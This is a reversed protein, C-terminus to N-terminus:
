KLRRYVLSQIKNGTRSFPNKFLLSAKAPLGLQFFISFSVLIKYSWFTNQLILLNVILFSVLLCVFTLYDGSFSAFELNWKKLPKKVCHMPWGSGGGGGSRTSVKQQCKKPCKKCVSKAFVKQTCKKQERKTSVKLTCYIKWNFKNEKLFCRGHAALIVQYNRDGSSM